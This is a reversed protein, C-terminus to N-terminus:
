FYYVKMAPTAVTTEEDKKKKEEESSKEDASGQRGRSRSGTESCAFLVVCM